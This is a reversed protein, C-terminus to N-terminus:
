LFTWDVGITLLSPNGGGANFREYEGRLAWPGFTWQLGAGYAVANNTPNHSVTTCSSAVCDTFDAHTTIRSGGAKAYVQVVPIPLYSLLFLGGGRQSVSGPPVGSGPNDVHPEGLDLYELELALPTGTPHIGFDLHYALHTEDFNGTSGALGATGASVRGLGFGAGVYAGTLDDAFAPSGLCAAVVAAAITARVTSTMRVGAQGIRGIIIRIRASSRQGFPYSEAV